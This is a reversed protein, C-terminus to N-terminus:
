CAEESTVFYTTKTGWSSSFYSPCYGFTWGGVPEGTHAASSYYTYTFQNGLKGAAPSQAQAPLAGATTTLAAALAVAFMARNGFKNTM